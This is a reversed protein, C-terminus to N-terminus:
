YISPWELRAVFHAAFPFRAAVATTKSVGFDSRGGSRGGRRQRCRVGGDKIGNTERADALSGIDRNCQRKRPSNFNSPFRKKKNNNKQVIKSFKIKNCTANNTRTWFLLKKKFLFSFCSLNKSSVNKVHFYNNRNWSLLNCAFNM